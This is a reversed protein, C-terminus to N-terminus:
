NFNRSWGKEWINHLPHFTVAQSETLNIFLHAGSNAHELVSACVFQLFHRESIFKSLHLSSIQKSALFIYFCCCPRDTATMLRWTHHNIFYKCVLAWHNSSRAGFIPFKHELLYCFLVCHTNRVKLLKKSNRWSISMMQLEFWCLSNYHQDLLTTENACAHITM